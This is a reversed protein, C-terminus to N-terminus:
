GPPSYHIDLATVASPAPSDKLFVVHLEKPNETRSRYPSQHVAAELEPQTRIIIPIKMGMRNAIGDSVANTLGDITANDATFVVNGSQIYTRINGAGADNFIATLESMPLKNKGGVNIGRLLAIHTESM